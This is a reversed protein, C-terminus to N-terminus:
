ADHREKVHSLSLWTEALHVGPRSRMREFVEHLGSASSAAVTGVLDAPGLCRALFGVEERAAIEAAADGSDDELRAAFGGHAALGAAAPDLLATVRVAGAELLRMVRSRVAGASLEVRGAMEAFSLRGDSELLALLRRDTDDPSVRLPAAGFCPAAKLVRTYVAATVGGAQPLARIEDVAATLEELGRG